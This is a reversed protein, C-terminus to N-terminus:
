KIKAQYKQCASQAREMTGQPLKTAGPGGAQMTVRGGSFNPDKMDVGHDRMCQAYQLLAKKTAADPGKTSPGSASSPSKGAGCARVALSTTAALAVVITRTIM